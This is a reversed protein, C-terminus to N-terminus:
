PLVIWAVIPFTVAGAVTSLLIEASIREPAADYRSAFVFANAATPLAAILVGAGVWTPDVGALRLFAWAVAPYLVLKAAAIFSIPLLHGELRRGALSGGLAFLATPGASAGVFSLLRDVPIPLRSGSLGIAAGAIVGLVIPNGVTARLVDRGAGGRARGDGPRGLSMLVIGAPMLIGVEALIAMALPGTAREGLLSLLLPVGLFGLNGNTAAQAHAGVVGVGGGGIATIGATAAFIVAGAGLFALLYRADLVGQLPQRALMGTILAPLALDFAYAAFAAIGAPALWGLRAAAWGIVVVAFIPASALVFSLM